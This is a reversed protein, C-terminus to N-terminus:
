QALSPLSPGSHDRGKWKQGERRERGTWKGGKKEKGSGKRGERAKGKGRLDIEDKM